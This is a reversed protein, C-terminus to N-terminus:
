KAPRTQPAQEEEPAAGIERAFDEGMREMEEPSIRGDTDADYKRFRSFLEKRLGALIAAREAANWRGDANADFREALNAVWKELGVRVRDQFDEREALSVTGDGDTDMWVQVRQMMRFASAAFKVRASRQEERSVQGDGDADSMRLRVDRQLKRFGEEFREINDQEADSLTGDGDDDFYKLRIAQQAQRRRRRRQQQVARREDASLVRDGDADYRALLQARRAERWAAFAAQREQDSLQGDGDTDYQRIAVAYRQRWGVKAQRDDGPVKGGALMALAGRREEGTLKRNKDRDFAALVRQRLRFRYADAEFWDIKRNANADFAIAAEWADFCRVFADPMQGNAEWEKRTLENDRGAAKLFRMREAAEDYPDVAGTLLDAETTPPKPAPRSPATQACVGASLAALVVAQSILRRM